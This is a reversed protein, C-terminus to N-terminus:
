ASFNFLLKIVILMGELTFRQPRVPIDSWPVFHINTQFTKSTKGFSYKLFTISYYFKSPKIAQKM